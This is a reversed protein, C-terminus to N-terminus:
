TTFNSLQITAWSANEHFPQRKEFTVAVLYGVWLDDFIAPLPKAHAYRYGQELSLVTRINLHQAANRAETDSERSM